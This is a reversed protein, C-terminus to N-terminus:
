KIMVARAMRITSGSGMRVLYAGAPLRQGRDDRGDWSIAHRGAPCDADLLARVLQGSINYVALRVRGPSPLVFSIAANAAMPTPSIRLLSEPIRPPAAAEQEVGSALPVYRHRWTGPAFRPQQEIRGSNDAASIYYEVTDGAAAGPIQASFSDARTATMPVATFLGSTGLRYQCNKVTLQAAPHCKIFATVTVPQGAPQAGAVPIHDVQLMMSDTVGMARCHIADTNLWDYYPIGVVHYGPLAAHYVQLAAADNATSWIPVYVYDNLIISNTYGEDGSSSVRVIEWNGGYHNPLTALYAAMAELSSYDGHSPPVQLVLLKTPSLIKAWCDIHDIYSAQPDALAQYDNVGLYQLMQDDVWVASSENEAYVLDTSMSQGHGASMYNGGTHVLVSSYVPLNWASGIVGPVADDQPRPRNYAFDFIGQRGDSKLVFWPGYDRVWISNTSAIVYGVNAINIGNSALGTSCAARQSSSVVMWLKTHDSISDLLSYPVGLPWRVLVGSMAEYEAPNRTGPPPPASRPIYTGIEHKRTLEEATFGQPLLEESGDVSRVALVPAALLLLLAIVISQRM